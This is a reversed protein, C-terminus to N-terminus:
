NNKIDEIINEILSEKNEVNQKVQKYDKYATEIKYLINLLTSKTNEDFTKKELAKELEDNYDKKVFKDIINDINDNKKQM